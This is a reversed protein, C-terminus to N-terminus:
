VGTRFDEHSYQWISSGMAGTLCFLFLMVALGKIETNVRSNLHSTKEPAKAISMMVKTDHGTSIVMGTAWKTNRLVTGRLLLNEPTIPEKVTRPRISGEGGQSGRAEHDKGRPKLSAELSGSFSAIAKNPHEMIIQGSFSELDKHNDVRGLLVKQVQRIKLNTEGDLSKTEVYCAGSCNPRYREHVGVLLMDAPVEERNRVKVFDGVAVEWREKVAWNGSSKDLVVAKSANALADAKHRSADEIITFVMDILVIFLLPALLIPYGFTSTIAPIAQMSSVILFYLNAIKKRPHFEMALFKPMFSWVEYKSTKIFNDCFAYEQPKNIQVIRTPRERMDEITPNPWNKPNSPPLPNEQGMLTRWLRQAMNGQQKRRRCRTPHQFM